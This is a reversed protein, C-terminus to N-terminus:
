LRDVAKIINMIILAAFIYILQGVYIIALAKMTSKGWTEGFFQKHSKVFLYIVIAALPFMFFLVANSDGLLSLLPITISAVFIIQGLIYVYLISLETFYFKKKRYIIYSVMTVFPILGLYFLDTHRFIMETYIGAFDNISEVSFPPSSSFTLNKISQGQRNNDILSLLILYIATWFILYKLPSYYHKTRGHVFDLSTKGPNLWLQKVTHLLGKDVEFVDDVVLAWVRKITLRELVKQGCVNCYNGLFDNDCTKCKM